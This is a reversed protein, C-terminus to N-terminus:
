VFPQEGLHVIAWFVIQSIFFLLLASVHFLYSASLPPPSFFLLTEM